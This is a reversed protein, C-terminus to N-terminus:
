PREQAGLRKLTEAVSAGHSAPSVQKDVALIRGDVGIYFTWRSAFGSAGLVGYARATEKTADSLIPFDAGLSEAFHANTEPRDVSAAFYMVDFRRM